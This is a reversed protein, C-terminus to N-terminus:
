VCLRCLCGNQAVAVSQAVFRKDMGMRMGLWWVRIEVRGLGLWHGVERRVLGVLLAGMAGRWGDGMYPPGCNGVLWGWV